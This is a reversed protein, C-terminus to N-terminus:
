KGRLRQAEADRANSDGANPLVWLGGKCGMRLVPYYGAELRM